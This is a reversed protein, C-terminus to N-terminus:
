GGLGSMAHNPNKNEEHHFQHGQPKKQVAHLILERLQDNSAGSRMPDKLDMRGSNGLCFVLEGRSTLRMRNCKECFNRSKASIIGVTTGSPTHCFYNAPGNGVLDTGTTWVSDGGMGAQVRTLIEAAPMYSADMQMGAKGIPMTEIFRLILGNEKAFAVMAPIETDNVGGMVVMNVKVPHLGAAVAARIGRLVVELQGGRTIKAFTEPNLSDLSINVRRVGAQQLENAYRELLVANTSLSVERLHPNATLKEILNVLHRRLLPEGGTLRIKEIGLVSFIEILRALEELSLLEHNEVSIREDGVRCYLCKLNCRDTVSVRLYSITRGFSDILSM